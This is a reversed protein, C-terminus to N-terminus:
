IDPILDQPHKIYNPIIFLPICEQSIQPNTNLWQIFGWVNRQIALNVSEIDPIIGLQALWQVVDFDGNLVAINAGNQGPYLHYQALWNLRDRTQDIYVINDIINQNPRLSRPPEALWDLIDFNIPQQLIAYNIANSDPKIGHDWLWQLIPINGNKIAFYVSKINPMIGQQVLWNLITLNPNFLIMNNVANQSPLIGYQALRSVMDLNLTPNKDLIYDIDSQNPLINYKALWDLIDFNLKYNHAFVKTLIDRDPLINLQALQELLDIRNSIVLINNALRSNLPISNHDILWQIVNIDKIFSYNEPDDIYPIINHKILWKLANMNIMSLIDGMYIKSPNIGRQYLWELVESYGRMLLDDYMELNSNFIDIYTPDTNYMIDLIFMIIDINTYPIREYVDTLNDYKKIWRQWRSYTIASEPVQIYTKVYDSPILVTGDPLVHTFDLNLKQTWFYDDKCIQAAQTNTLCYAIIDKYSLHLLINQSIENPINM